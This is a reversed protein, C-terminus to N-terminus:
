KKTVDEFVWASGQVHLAPTTINADIGTNGSTISGGFKEAGIGIPVLEKGNVALTYDGYQPRYTVVVQQGEADAGVPWMSRGFQKPNNGIFKGCAANKLKVTQSGDANDTVETVTWQSNADTKPSHQIYEAAGDYRIATHSLSALNNRFIYTHGQQLRKASLRASITAPSPISDPANYVIPTESIYHRAYQYGGLNLMTTDQRMRSQFDAFDKRDRASWGTEAICMLRPLAMYELMENTGINECWFTGQVGAVHQQLEPTLENPMPDMNYVNQVNDSADGPLVKEIPNNSQKRNIYGRTWPTVVADLGLQAAKTANGWANTWCWITAGTSAMLETDAGECDLSESWTALRRGRKAIFDAVDKNFHSQLQRIHTLGMDQMKQKCQENGEWAKTPCEDGGIHIIKSPFIDMIETLIDYVFQMAEPNAVNLVDRSVGYPMVGGHKGAPNCSFQPYADMCALAHGPFEIEPIVDIHREAAYAVIDKMDQQSYYFPGYQQNTWYPGENYDVIWSNGTTAAQTTLKPYKKIEARWGQDDTFHWHFKNMKYIAMLDIIHKLEKVDYFHRSCDLMFGRYRFRPADAIDVLPLTYPSGATGKVGAAVNAPMLKKLSVLGYYLGLETPASIKIGSQTISLNYGETGYTSAPMSKDLSLQVCANAKASVKAKHGAAAANFSAVFNSVDAKLAASMGPAGVTITKPLTLQGGQTTVNLPRPTINVNDARLYSMPLVALAIILTYNLISKM